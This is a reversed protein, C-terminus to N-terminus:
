AKLQNRHIIGNINDKANHKGDIQDNGHHVAFFGIGSFRSLEHLIILTFISLVLVRLRSTRNWAWGVM